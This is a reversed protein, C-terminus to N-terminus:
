WYRNIDKGYAEKEFNKGEEGAQDVGDKWDGWHVTEHLITSEVLLHMEPKGSDTKEFRECIEEALYIHNPETSGRFEGNAGPMVASHLIPLPGSGVACRADSESLESYKLFAAWVKNKNKVKPLNDEVWKSLKPYKSRFAYAIKM